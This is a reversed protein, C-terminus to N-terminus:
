AQTKAWGQRMFRVCLAVACVNAAMGVALFGAYGLVGVAVGGLIPGLFSGAQLAMVMLNSNVAKLRPESIGYMLANLSPPGVGMGLGLVLAAAIEMGLGYTGWLLGFGLATAVYCWLILKLKDVEDFLRAAFIRILLMCCTQISFFLGVGGLGRDAFMGKSLFFLAAFNLYYVANIVLLLGIKPTRMNSLMARFTVPDATLTSDQKDARKRDQGGQRLLALNVLAAPVLALSMLAYGYAPSPLYPGLRDFSAPVISYPLLAAISYVGFAQGSREPPIHAVLLTMASASLLYVGAGNLLRLAILGAADREILYGAGCGILVAIGVFIAWPANKTTLYPSAFLFCLITALSSCSIIPGRLQQPIGIEELYVYLNYFVSINCYALLMFLCLALFRFTFLPPRTDRM